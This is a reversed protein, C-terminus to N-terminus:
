SISGNFIIWKIVILIPILEVICLYYFLYFSSSNQHTLFVKVGEVIRLLFAIVLFGGLIYLTTTQAGPLYFLPYLIVIVVTAEALHYLYNNIIYQSVGHRNEFTNGLLRLIGNRLIYLLSLGVALLLYGQLGTQAMAIRHIPLSVVAVLFLGMPLMMMSRNLNCDRVIRDMARRDFLSKILSVAKIKRLHYYLCILGTLLLLAVFIWAPESNDPRAITGTHQVQLSHRQFLSKRFVTDMVERPRHISDFPIGMDTEATPGDTIDWQWFPLATLNLTDSDYEPM